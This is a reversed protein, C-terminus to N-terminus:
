QRKEGPKRLRNWNRCAIPEHKYKTMLNNFHKPNVEKYKELKEEVLDDLVIDVVKGILMEDEIKIKGNFMRGFGSPMGQSLIERRDAVFQCEISHCDVIVEIEKLDRYEIPVTAEAINKADQNVWYDQQKDRPFRKFVPLKTRDLLDGKRDYTCYTRMMRDFDNTQADFRQPRGCYPCVMHVIITDYVGM